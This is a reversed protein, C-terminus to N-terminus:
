VDSESDVNAYGLPDDRRSRLIAMVLGILFTAFFFYNAYFFISGFFPVALESSNIFTSVQTMVCHNKNVAQSLQCPESSIGVTTNTYVQTGFTVYQPVLTVLEMNLLLVVFMLLWAGMLMANPPTDGKKVEHLKWCFLRIGLVVLGNITCLFIYIVLCGFVIYDIPFAKSFTRLALDIPNSVTPSELSYGCATTCPSYIQKDITSMMCAIVVLLSVSILLVGVIIRLPAMTDWMHECFTSVREASRNLSDKALSMKSQLSAEREKLLEYQQRDEASWEGQSIKYRNALFEMEARTRRLNLDANETANTGRRTYRSVSIRTGRKSFRMLGLPLESLGFATYVLWGLLGLCALCCIGFTLISSGTGFSGKLRDVYSQDQGNPNFQGNKLVIGLALLVAFVVVFGITYKLASCIRTSRPSDEDEEEFYFYTFPMILFAYALLSSYLIYYLIQIVHGASETAAPDTQYGESNTNSSVTYIDVPVLFLTLLALSLATTTVFSTLNTAQSRDVYRRNILYSFLPVLLLALALLGWAAGNM